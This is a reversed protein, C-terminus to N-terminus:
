RIFLYQCHWVAFDVILLLLFATFEGTHGYGCLFYFLIFRDGTYFGLTGLLVINLQIQAIGLRSVAELVRAHQSGVLIIYTLYAALTEGGEITRKEFVTRATMDKGSIYVVAM